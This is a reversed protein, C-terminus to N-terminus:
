ELLPIGYFKGLLKAFETDNNASDLMDQTVKLRREKQEITLLKPVFKASVRRMTLNDTLISHLSGPSIGADEALERVTVRRDQM